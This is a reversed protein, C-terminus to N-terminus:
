LQDSNRRKYDIVERKFCGRRKLFWILLVVMLFMLGLAFPYGYTWSLEPMNFPSSDKFNM